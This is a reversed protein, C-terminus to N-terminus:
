LDLRTGGGCQRVESRAGSGARLTKDAEVWDEPRERLELERGRLYAEYAAANSTGGAIKAAQQGSVLRLKLATAIEGVMKDQLAFVENWAGDFREAWIHGNTTADILQANIRMEDGIRRISGELLYRVKLEAAIQVPQLSKDKYTFAANRSIVFLGPLRAM